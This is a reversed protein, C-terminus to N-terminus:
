TIYTVNSQCLESQKYVSQVIFKVNFNVEVHLKIAIFTIVNCRFLWKQPQSTTTPNYRALLQFAHKFTLSPVTTPQTPPLPPPHRPWLAYTALIDFIIPSPPTQQYTSRHRPITFTYNM